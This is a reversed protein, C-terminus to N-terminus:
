RATNLSRDGINCSGYDGSGLDSNLVPRSVVFDADKGRFRPEIARAREKGTVVQDAHFFFAGVHSGWLFIVTLFTDRNRRAALAKALRM